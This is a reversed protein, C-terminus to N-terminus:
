EFLELRYVTLNRCHAEGDDTITREARNQFGPDILSLSMIPNSQTTTDVIHCQPIEITLRPQDRTSRESFSPTQRECLRGSTARRCYSSVDTSMAACHAVSDGPGKYRELFQTLPASLEQVIMSRSTIHTVSCDLPRLRQRPFVEGRANELWKM